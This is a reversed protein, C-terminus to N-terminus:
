RDQFARQSHLRLWQDESLTTIGNEVGHGDDHDNNVNANNADNDDDVQDDEHDEDDSM